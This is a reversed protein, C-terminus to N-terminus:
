RKPTRPTTDGTTTLARQRSGLGPQDWQVRLLLGSALRPLPDYDLCIHETHQQPKGEQAPNRRVCIGSSGSSSNVNPSDGMFQLPRKALDFPLDTDGHRKAESNSPRRRNVRGLQIDPM